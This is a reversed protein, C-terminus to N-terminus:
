LPFIVNTTWSLRNYGRFYYDTESSPVYTGLGCYSTIAIGNFEKATTAKYLIADDLAARWTAYTTESPELAQVYSDFDYSHCRFDNYTSAKAFAQLQSPYAIYCDGTEHYLNRTVTALYDLRSTDIVTIQLAQQRQYYYTYTNTAATVVGDLGDAMLPEVNLHYPMGTGQLETPSVVLRYACDRLEYVTEVSGMLCTDFYIFDLKETSAQLATALDTVDMWYTTRRNDLDYEGGYAQPSIGAKAPASLWDTGHGWFVLGYSSAPALAQMDAMVEQMRETTTSYVTYDYSKLTKDDTEDKGTIEILRPPDYDTVVLPCYYVLLRGNNAGSAALGQRMEQLDLSDYSAGGLSSNSIGLSSNALMYVLVTRGEVPTVPVDPEDHSDSSCSALLLSTFAIITSKLHNM